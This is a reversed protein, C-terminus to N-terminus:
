LICIAELDMELARKVQFITNHRKRKEFNEKFAKLTLIHRSICLYNSQFNHIVVKLRAFYNIIESIIFETNIIKRM